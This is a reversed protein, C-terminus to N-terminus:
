HCAKCLAGRCNQAFPHSRGCSRSRASRPFGIARVVVARVVGARVVVARVVVAWSPAPAPREGFQAVRQAIWSDGHLGEALMVPTGAFCAVRAGFEPHAEIAAGRLGFAQEFLACAPALERVGIVVAGVGHFDQAAVSSRVM